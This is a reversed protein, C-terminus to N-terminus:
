RAKLASGQIVNNEKFFANMSGLVRKKDASWMPSVLTKKPGDGTLRHIVVNPPIVSLCRALAEFYQQMSMTEFSGSLYEAYLDSDKLVHLLQLKIGDSVRGAYEASSTMMEVSENPLGLILHTIVEIGADRLRCVADNYVDLTYGRRIYDATQQHVTQLGLEVWVPKIKNLRELLKVTDSPLCDPRTGVSMVSIKPHMVTGYFLKELYDIDAYTNTYSQYYAALLAGDAKSGVTKIADDIQRDISGCFRAAFDGGGHESCFICGRTGKSGDRTPCTMGGDLALKYLKKGFRRKMAEGFTNIYM